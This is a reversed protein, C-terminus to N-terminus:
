LAACSVASCRCTLFNSTLNQFRMETGSSLPIASSTYLRSNGYIGPQVRSHVYCSLDWPVVGPVGQGYVDLTGKRCHPLVLEDNSEEIDKTSVANQHKVHVM